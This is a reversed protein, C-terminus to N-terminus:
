LFKFAGDPNNSGEPMLHAGGGRYAAPSGGEAVPYTDVGVNIKAFNEEYAAFRTINM